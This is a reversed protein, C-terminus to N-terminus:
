FLLTNTFKSTVSAIISSTCHALIGVKIIEFYDSVSSFTATTPSIATPFVDTKRLNEVPCNPFKADVVAAVNMLFDIYTSPSSNLSYIQSVAPSSFNRAILAM